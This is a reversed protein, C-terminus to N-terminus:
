WPGSPRPRCRLLDIVDALDCRGQPGCLRKRYSHGFLNPGDAFFVKRMEEVALATGFRLLLPDTHFDGREFAAWVHLLERTGNDVAQGSRDIERLLALWTEGLTPCTIEKM